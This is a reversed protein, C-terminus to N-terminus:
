REDLSALFRRIAAALREPDYRHQLITTAELWVSNPLREALEKADSLAHLPDRRHGVVLAPMALRALTAEDDGLPPETLLGRLVATAVRPDAGAVDRLAALEPVGRPLPVRRAAAGLPGLALRGAAYATAMTGFGPRGVRYGQALVPMEVIMAEVREPSALATALAVNAGLSIGGVVATELGLHDLLAIADAAMEGWTYRAPDTPKSSKGHGHLDLLLVRAEPLRAAIREMLHSSLLLGHMLVVPRGTPSGRRAYHLRLDGRAFEPM